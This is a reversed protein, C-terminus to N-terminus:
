RWGFESYWIGNRYNEVGRRVYPITDLPLADIPFWELADCKFPERNSITGEWRNVALFFDVREDDSKRHMVHVVCVDAPLLRVGVEEEAERIAARTVTEGPEVHGAVVSYKGDEWGTNFRRLMLLKDDSRFLLHVAVPYTTRMWGGMLRQWDPQFPNYCLLVRAAVQRWRRAGQGADLVGLSKADDVKANRRGEFEAVGM